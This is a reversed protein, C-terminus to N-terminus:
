RSRPEFVVYPRSPDLEAYDPRNPNYNQWFDRGRGSGEGDGTGRPLSNKVSHRTRSPGSLIYDWDSTPNPTGNARSGVVIIPQGAKDAANQIRKADNPSIGAEAATRLGPGCWGGSNHVLVPTQGALVYYTHLRDITLNYMDGDGPRARVNLVSVRKNTETILMHGPALRSADVWQHASEDWFPHHSTTHLVAPRGNKERVTVDVLDKDHHVLQAIVKHPGHHRGDDPDASEVRDGPRVKGIPKTKGDEMLVETDPTFSNCGYKGGGLGLAILELSEQLTDSVIGEMRANSACRGSHHVCYTAAIKKAGHVDGTKLLYNYAAQCGDRGYCAMSLNDGEGIPTNWYDGNAETAYTYWYRLLDNEDDTQPGLLLLRSEVAKTNGTATGCNSNCPAPPIPKSYDVADNPSGNGESGDPRHACAEQSGGRGGCMVGMGTPDSHTVPNQVAYTYGNLTQNKDVELLPDVSIFQGTTPDYERAGIHTLGTTTDAPKGLFGKDDPWPGYLPQGRDAGFPTTYRKNIAWTTADLTLSATGHPDTALFTLKTGTTGATATRVAITQGGATYYRTGTLTKTAGKVTLRVETDGLYLITDGDGTARRILLNGDADYLYGTQKTGETLSALKDESNWALTQTGAPGPRHTTNGTKDYTYSATTAGTTHDLPHPQNNTTGYAYNTTRDGATQHQTETDRQGSTTYSYSTWYPAAGGLNATTRGSTACDATDPTWAETMRGYGDYTFCQNDAKSTGGLTSADSISTVNGADDQTFNLDQPMYGHTDDTVYSRTLRRTGNEYRYNLYAKRASSTSDMGVTLTTLDGLESYAAGLLYGTTGGLTKINGLTDYAPAIGESPLGAVAPDGIGSPLNAVNYSTDFKLTQPVGAAVLADTAPLTLESNVANYLGDFKTVKKVYAQSSTGSSGGVYRTATDQQGKAAQDYDWHALKNADTTDSQWLDTKRGLVDYAYLLKRNEADQTWDTQDLNNYHSQATGKDPDTTSTQRGFLDYGYSWVSGDHATITRQQGGPTYTYRTHNYSGTADPSAYQRTETTQGLANTLTSTAQGGAPASQIVRDGQYTTTTTWRHAGQVKTESTIPRAASDYTTDVQIPAQGGEVTAPSGSPPNNADWIDSLASSVLGRTDYQTLAIIRGGSPSPSQTQRARLLSDYIIYTTNYGSATPTLSSTAVSSVTDKSVHYDYKYNPTAGALRLRNALWVQTVRGLSDYTSETIKNNPDTVKTAAGTAFDIVSKTAYTKADAVETATLPGAAIPTYTTKSVQTDNTDTVILPRGLTDFTTLSLKQWSPQGGTGYGSARGTWRAEGKTPTQDATWATDADYTTATDAIVDGPKISDAPLDLASDATACPKATTRTRSVLSTLGASPNRAYWTRTCTEDGTVADDGQDEVTQPMGYDDYTTATTRTRDAPQSGSTVRTRTHTAATRVYYAEIDAYSKHQTATKQSWPDNITGTVEDAGNFTVTERTFGAYQDADTLAPAKIGTSQARRRADPDLTKGDAELLRDGDMGRMYVAVTKSRTGNSPGTYHTVKEFGRWISWTREKEPTLPDDDYHWAGGTDSYEYSDTITGSAGTEDTTSVVSVPYKQFWDLVPDVDGGNPRWYVPYCTRTNQDPRPMSQGAVCDAPQYTVATKAGTETTIGTLRPKALPLINDASGDVRNTLFESTFSVPDTSLPTGHEGTHQISQLWLSQDSSDGVEGPDLYVQTLKWSDVPEFGASPSLAANWASTTIGTLRKRTFFAPGTSDCDTAEWACIADFPVDPWHPSTSATLSDCGTDTRICREDYTLSVEDSAAPSGSFLADARQGYLIKSLYGGRIYYSAATSAGNKVYYNSEKTYWYSMANGHLDEVYDLNWRWAQVVSRNAFASGQDYGPEGADDGFVAVTWTSNTRETDAGPLKNLGFVYRIGDGTTVTWYEGNGDGNDAGTSRTVTSADDGKLRWTGSTDDKVLETSKGNLVLSANDYKWCLDYKGDQGDDDCSGYKREIFSSTLDFGEGIQSGQNNTSATRGDVSGSDYSISLDPQPGAAAPPAKLPYNWTFTGSSGGAEWTSSASLPTAKYDGGGSQTGAALALLMTQGGAPASPAASANPAATRTTRFTLRARLRQGDRDNTQPLPKATRCAAKGPHTVACDPLKLIQLRGAWDGGYADAFASYDIGLEAAGGSPAGTVSLAVGKIGLASTQKRSLVSVKVTPAAKKAGTAQKGAGTTPTALTLPLSGATAKATGSAPATLTVTAPGPWASTSHQDRLARQAAKKDAAEQRAILRSAATAKPKLPSTQVSVQKPPEPRGLPKAPEAVAALPSLLGPLLAFAATVAIRGHLRTRSQTARRRFLPMPRM